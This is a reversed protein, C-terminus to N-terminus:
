PAAEADLTGQLHEAEKSYLQAGSDCLLAQHARVRVRCEQRENLWNIAVFKLLVYLIRNM